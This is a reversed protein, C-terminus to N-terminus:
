LKVTIPNENEIEEVQEFKIHPLSIQQYPSKFDKIIGIMLIPYKLFMAVDKHM